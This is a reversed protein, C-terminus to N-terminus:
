VSILLKPQVGPPLMTGKPAVICDWSIYPMEQAEGVSTECRHLDAADERFIAPLAASFLVRPKELHRQAEQLAEYVSLRLNLSPTPSPRPPTPDIRYVPDLQGGFVWDLLVEAQRRPLMSQTYTRNGARAIALAAAPERLLFRAKDVLEEPSDYACYDRDERLILELGSQPSLRDTLLCGGASLVEFVRLNLDGNLSANFSAVSAAFLDASAERTAEQTLLAVGHHRMADLLRQRRPHRGSSQGIFCVQPKRGDKIPRPLHRAKLGPLWALNSFGAEAFWHLHHRNHSSVIFDFGAKQAYGIMDNLPRKLHQTDGVCLVKPCDFSALNLPRNSGSADSWVVIADFDRHLKQGGLAAMLDYEGASTWGDFM